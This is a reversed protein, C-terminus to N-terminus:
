SLAVEYLGALLNPLRNLSHNSEIYDRGRCGMRMRLARDSILKLLLSTLREEDDPNATYGTQEDQVIQSVGGVRTAVVPLGSAMAELVVNPTGERDSTLVLIDADRYISAMEAQPGRFEIADPLLGLEAAQQELQMREPGDGVIMAKIKVQAVQNNIRAVLSIFRDFRKAKHLRGVALLRITQEDKRVGPKFRETDVVNPLHHLRATPVGLKIANQIAIQSNAAILRPLHLSMRGFMAGTARVEGIADSRMAGVDHARIARAAAVAYLNTFFHQSQLINPPNKRLEKIMRALRLARSGYKGMWVIPVGLERIREEWIDGRTLSILSINAGSQRLARVIYFLQQEAGGQGLTGAIFCIKLKALDLM